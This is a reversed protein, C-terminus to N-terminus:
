ARQRLMDLYLIARDNDNDNNDLITMITLQEIRAM